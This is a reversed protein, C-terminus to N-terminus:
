ACAAPNPASSAEQWAAISGNAALHREMDRSEPTAITVTLAPKAPSATATAGGPPEDGSSCAALGTLGLLAILTHRAAIM